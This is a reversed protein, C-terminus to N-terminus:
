VVKGAANVSKLWMMQQRQRVPAVVNKPRHQAYYHTRNVANADHLVSYMFQASYLYCFDNGLEETQSGRVQIASEMGLELAVQEMVGPLPRAVKVERVWPNFYTLVRSQFDIMAACQHWSTYFRRKYQAKSLHPLSITVLLRQPWNAETPQRPLSQTVFDAVEDSAITCDAWERRQEDDEVKALLWARSGEELITGGWGLISKPCVLTQTARVNLPFHASTSLGNRITELERFLEIDPKQDGGDPFKAIVTEKNYWAEANTLNVPQAGITRGTTNWTSDRQNAQTGM